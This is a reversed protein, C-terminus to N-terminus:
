LINGRQEYGHDNVKEQLSWKTADLPFGDLVMGFRVKRYTQGKWFGLTGINEEVNVEVIAVDEAAQEKSYLKNM